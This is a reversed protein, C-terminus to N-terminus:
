LPKKATELVVNTNTLKSQNTTSYLRPVLLTKCPSSRGRSGFGVARVRKYVMKSPFPTGKM